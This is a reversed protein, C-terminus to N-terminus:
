KLVGPFLNLSLKEIDSLCHVITATQCLFRVLANEQNTKASLSCRKRSLVTQCKDPKRWSKIEQQFALYDAFNMAEQEDYSPHCEKNVSKNQYNRLGSQLRMQVITFYKSM